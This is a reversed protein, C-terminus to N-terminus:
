ATLTRCYSCLSMAAWARSRTKWGFRRSCVSPCRVCCRTAPRTALSDNVEKFRDLDVFLLGFSNGHRLSLATLQAIRDNLLTRNPLGTLSDYSAQRALAMQTELLRTVDTLVAIYHLM